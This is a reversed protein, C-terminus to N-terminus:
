DLNKITIKPLATKCSWLHVGPENVESFSVPDHNKDVKIIVLDHVAICFSRGIESKNFKNKPYGYGDARQYSAMSDRHNIVIYKDKYADDWWGKKVDDQYGVLSGTTLMQLNSLFKGSGLPTFHNLNYNECPQINYAFRKAAKKPESVETESATKVEMSETAVQFCIAYGNERADSLVSYSFDSNIGEPVQIIPRYLTIEHPSTASEVHIGDKAIKRVWGTVVVSSSSMPIMRPESDYKNAFSISMFATAAMFPMAVFAFYKRLFLVFYNSSEDDSGAGSLLMYYVVHAIFISGIVSLIIIFRSEM